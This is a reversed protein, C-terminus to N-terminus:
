RIRHLEHVDIGPNQPELITFHEAVFTTLVTQHKHHWQFNYNLCPHNRPSSVISELAMAFLNM